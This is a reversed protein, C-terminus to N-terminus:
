RAIVRLARLGSEVGAACEAATDAAATVLAIRGFATGQPPPAYSRGPVALVEIRDVAPLLVSEDVVVEDVTTEEAVYGFRVAASRSRFGTTAPPRGCAIAAAVLGPDVGTARLGLYPVLDGGLRANIEIVKPAVASGARGLRLETHTMGDTFGVAAHARQLVDRVAPDHLLPDDGAVRHGVEEFYPPYGLEKRALCFPRVEGRVIASDVSIEAGDAFEEVLVHEDHEPAGPVTTDAALTFAARLEGADRVLVVGLSAALARPKLVVPYGIREAAALAADLDPVLVSVPQPVGAAALASRTRHKDRCNLVADATPGTLGLADTVAATAHVLAEDWSLVGDLPDDAHLRRAAAVLEAPDLLSALVTSDDLYRKEWSPETATFLHIRYEPAISELLYDRFPRAGTGVLLLHPRPM